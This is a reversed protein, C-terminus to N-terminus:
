WGVGNAQTVQGTPPLQDSLATRLAFFLEIERCPRLTDPEPRQVWTVPGRPTVSPPLLVTGTIRQVGRPWSLAVGYPEGALLVRHSPAYPHALVASSRRRATLVKTVQAALLAPIMIAILDHQLRLWIQDRRLIVSWGWALYDAAVM